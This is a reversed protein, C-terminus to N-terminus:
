KGPRRALLKEDPTFADIRTLSKWTWDRLEGPNGVDPVDLIDRKIHYPLPFGIEKILRLEAAATNEAPTESSASTKWTDSASRAETFRFIV